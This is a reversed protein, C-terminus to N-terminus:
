KWNTAFDDDDEDSEHKVMDEEDPNPDSFMEAWRYNQSTASKQLAERIKQDNFIAAELTLIKQKLLELKEQIKLKKDVEDIADDIRQSTSRRLLMTSQHYAMKLSVWHEFEYEATNMFYRLMIIQIRYEKLDIVNQVEPRYGDSSVPFQALVAAKESKQKFDRIDKLPSDPDVLLAVFVFAKDATIIVEKVTEKNKKREVEIPKSLEVYHLLEPYVDFITKGPPIALVDYHMASSDM